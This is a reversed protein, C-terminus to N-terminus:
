WLTGLGSGSKGQRLTDSLNTYRQASDNKIAKKIAGTQGILIALKKARTLGTYIISRNLLNWHQFHIPLVIAPYESGQSRHISIAYALTLENLDSFDYVVERDNFAVTLQREENDIASIHGIDGNFVELQYNNVQQIVRDAIRYTTVGWRVEAKHAAPPNIAEQLMLNLNTTGISGRKMPSLVQVQKPSFGFRRPISNTVIKVVLANIREADDEEIFYCDSADGGPRAFIPAQGNNINHAYAIINSAAAQRFIQTLRSVPAVGAEIIDNLFEGPGVSPLQDADGVFCIQAEPPIAKLLHNALLIDIMSAEDIIFIDAKIPNEQNHKFSFSGPEFELMRHITKAEVGTVEGLRQAARGTPSALQVRKGMAVLLKVLARLATTKGCGPGGTIISVGSSVAVVIANIQEQSLEMREKECFRTLWNIVRSRDIAIAHNFNLLRMAAAREALFLPGVYVAAGFPAVEVRYLEKTAVMMEILNIFRDSDEIELAARSRNILELLPLFCHGDESADYLVYALGARLREDSDRALGLNLAIKDASKFGIGYVDRALQYPNSEIVKITDQGYHKFIKVAFSTSINHTTLFTMVNRIEKQEVWAKKISEVRGASIGRVESLRHPDAEIVDLTALGFREVMRKAM